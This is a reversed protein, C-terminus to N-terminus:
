VLPWATPVKEKKENQEMLSQKTTEIKMLDRILMTAYSSKPLSFSILLATRKEIELKTPSSLHKSDRLFPEVFSENEDSYHVFDWELSEPKRIIHRYDGSTDWGQADYAFHKELNLGDSQVLKEYYAKLQTPYTMKHGPVPLVIDEISFESIRNPGVAEVKKELSFSTM